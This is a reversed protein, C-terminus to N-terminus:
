FHFCMVILMFSILIVELYLHADMLNLYSRVYPVESTSVQPHVRTHRLLIVTFIVLCMEGHNTMRHFEIKKHYM